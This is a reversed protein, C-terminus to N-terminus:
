SPRRLQTVARMPQSAWRQWSELTMWTWTRVAVTGMQIQVRDPKRAVVSRVDGGVPPLTDGPQPDVRPDRAGQVPSCCVGHQGTRQRRVPTLFLPTLLLPVVDQCTSYNLGM